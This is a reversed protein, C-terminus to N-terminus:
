RSITNEQLPVLPIGDYFRIDGHVIEYWNETTFPSTNPCGDSVIIMYLNCLTYDPCVSGHINTLTHMITHSCSISLYCKLHYICIFSFYINFKIASTIHIFTHIYTHIYPLSRVGLVFVKWSM